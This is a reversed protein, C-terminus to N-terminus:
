NFLIRATVAMIGIFGLLVCVGQAYMAWDSWSNVLISWMANSAAQVEKETELTVNAWLNRRESNTKAAKAHYAINIMLEVFGFVISLLLCIWSLFLIIKMWPLILHEIKENFIAQASFLFLFTAIGFLTNIVFNITANAQTAADHVQRELSDLNHRVDNCYQRKEELRYEHQIANENNHEM